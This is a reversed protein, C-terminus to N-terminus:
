KPLKSGTKSVFKSHYLLEAYGALDDAVWQLAQASVTVKRIYADFGQSRIENELGNVAASELGSPVFGLYQTTARSIDEDVGNILIKGNKELRIADRQIQGMGKHEAFIKEQFQKLTDVKKVKGGKAITEQYVQMVKNREETAMSTLTQRWKRGLKKEMEAISNVGSTKLGRSSAKGAKCEIVVAIKHTKTLGLKALEEASEPFLRSCSIYFPSVHGSRPQDYGIMLTDISSYSYRALLAAM